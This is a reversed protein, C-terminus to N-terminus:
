DTHRDVSNIPFADYQSSIRPSPRAEARLLSVVDRPAADFTLLLAHLHNKGLRATETGAHDPRDLDDLTRELLVPRRDINTVFDHMILM